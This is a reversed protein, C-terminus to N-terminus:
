CEWVPKDTLRVKRDSVKFSGYRTKVILTNSKVDHKVIVGILWRGKCLAACPRGVTM